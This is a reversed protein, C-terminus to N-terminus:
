KTRFVKIVKREKGQVAEIFYIGPEYGQGFTHTSSGAAIKQEVIRGAGDVVKLQVPTSSSGQLRLTFYGP